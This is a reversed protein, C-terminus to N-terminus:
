AASETASDNSNENVELARPSGALVIRDGERRIPFEYCKRPEIELTELGGVHQPFIRMQQRRGIQKLYQADRQVLVAPPRGDKLAFVGTMSWAEPQPEESLTWRYLQAKVLRGERITPYILCKYLRDTQLETLKNKRTQGYVQCSIIAGDVLKLSVRDEAELSLHGYLKASAKHQGNGPLLRTHRPPKKRPTAPTIDSPAAKAVAIEPPPAAALQVELRAIASNLAQLIIPSATQPSSQQTELQSRLQQLQQEIQSATKTSPM